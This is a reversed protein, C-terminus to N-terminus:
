KMWSVYVEEKNMQKEKRPTEYRKFTKTYDRAQEVTHINKDQWNLLIRDVYKLNYASSILAEKVALKILGMDYHYENIWSSILEIEFSSVTRGFESEILHVLESVESEKEKKTDKDNEIMIDQIIKQYLPELTFKEKRKGKEDVVIDFAILNKQVLKYVLNSCEVFSLTMKDKLANISLFEKGKESVHYIHILLMALKEDLGLKVYHNIIYDKVNMIRNHILKKIFPETM